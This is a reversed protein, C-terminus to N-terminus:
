GGIRKTSSLQQGCLFNCDACMHAQFRFLYKTRSVRQWLNLFSEKGTVIERQWTVLTCLLSPFEPNQQEWFEFVVHPVHCVDSGTDKRSIIIRHSCFQPFRWHGLVVGPLGLYLSSFDKHKTWLQAWPEWVTLLSAKFRSNQKSDFGHKSGQYTVVPKHTLINRLFGGSNGKQQKIKSKLEQLM